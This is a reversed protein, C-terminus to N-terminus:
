NARLPDISQGIAAGERCAISLSRPTMADGIAWLHVDPFAEHPPASRSRRGGAWVILDFDAIIRRQGSWLDHAISRDTWEYRTDVFAAVGAEKMRDLLFERSEDFIKTAVRELPTLYTVPIGMQVLTEVASAADWGGLEDVVLASTVGDVSPHELFADASVVTPAGAKLKPTVMECGAAWVILDPSVSRLTEITAPQNLRLDIDARTIRHELYDCYVTWGSRHPAQGAIRARGGLRSDSEFLMVNAGRAVAAIAAECGAPGGGVIAVRKASIPRRDPDPQTRGLARPNIACSVWGQPRFIRCDEMCRICPRIESEVGRRAKDVWAQDALLGRGVGVLDADGAKIIDAALSPLDIRQTVNVPLGVVQKLARTCDRVGGRPFSEDRVYRQATSPLSLTIYDVLGLSELRQALDLIEVQELTDPAKGAAPLRIGLIKSPFAARVDSLTEVLFRARNESTGGYADTRQNRSPMLFQHMLYNHAAHLEYGQIGAAHLNRASDVHAKRLMRLDAETLATAFGGDRASHVASPSWIPFFPEASPWMELGLHLLQSVLVTGNSTVEDATGSLRETFGPDFIPLLNKARRRFSSEHVIAGGIVIMGVSLRSMETLNAHLEEPTLSSQGHPISVVRSRLTHSGIAIPEFLPAFQESIGITEQSTNQDL